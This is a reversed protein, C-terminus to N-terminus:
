MSKIANIVDKTPKRLCYCAHFWSEWDFPKKFESFTHNCMIPNNGGILLLLLYCFLSAIHAHLNKKTHEDAFTHQWKLLTHKSKLNLQLPKTSIHIVGSAWRLVQVHYSLNWTKLQFHITLLTHNYTTSISHFICKTEINKSGRLSSEMGM